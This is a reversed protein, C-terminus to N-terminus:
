MIGKSRLHSIIQMEIEEAGPTMPFEGRKVEPAPLAGAEIQDLYEGATPVNERLWTHAEEGSVGAMLERFKAVVFVCYLRALADSPNYATFWIRKKGVDVYTIM